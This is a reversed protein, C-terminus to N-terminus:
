RRISAASSRRRSPRPWRQAPRGLLFGQGLPVGLRLLTALEEPTEIGEAILKLGRETAFFIMGAALAQRAPDQDIGRVLGIDLKVFHPALELIHRFSAFGAGADDVAVRVGPGLDTLARRLSDYDGIEVHETVEIVVPRAIGAIAAAVGGSLIFGPSANLSLYAEHPLRVAAKVAATTTVMELENGLGARAAAAFVPAPSESGSFRTLAEFGVVRGGDLEVIPQFFPTFASADLSARILAQADAGRHRADLRPGLTAGLISGFTALASLREVLRHAAAPDHSGIGIIGVTGNPGTFPAYAATVLSSESPSGPRRDGLPDKAVDHVWPGALTRRRLSDAVLGPIPAGAHIGEAIIGAAGLVTEAGPTLDFVAASGVDSLRVIEACAAAAMQEATAAPDMGRLAAEISERERASRELDSELARERTVDRDTAIIATVRQQTDLIASMTSVIEVLSGDKTRNVITGTWERGGRVTTWRDAWAEESEQGSNLISPDRGILEVSAYGYLRTVATNVFAVTGDPELIWVPNPAQEVASGLRERDRDATFRATVDRHSEIIGILDGGADFMRTISVDAQVLSGDRHLNTITGTWTKGARAAAYRDDFFGPQQLGSDIITLARGGLEEVQYGYMRGAAVNAYTVKLDADLIFVGEAIQDLASAMRARESEAEVRETVDQTAGVYRRPQGADDRVVEAVEHVVRESGDPRVIRYEIPAPDGNRLETLTRAAKIRDDSQVFAVFAQLTSPMEDPKVGLLRHAESSWTLRDTALDREWSGVGSIRQATELQREATELTDITATMAAQQRSDRIAIAGHIAFVEALREDRVTFEDLEVKDGFYLHGYREKGAVMPIALLSRIPPHGAPYGTARRDTGVDRVRVPGTATAMAAFLGRVEPLAKLAAADRESLGDQIVGVIRGDEVIHMAAYRAGVLERSVRVIKDLLDDGAAALAALAAIRGDLQSIEPGLDKLLALIWSGGPDERRFVQAVVEVQVISGDPRQNPFVARASGTELLAAFLRMGRVLQRRRSRGTAPLVDEVPHGRLEGTTRGILHEYAPNLHRLRGDLDLIAIPNDILDAVSCVAEFSIDPGVARHSDIRAIAHAM